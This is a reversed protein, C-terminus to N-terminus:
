RRKYCRKLINQMNAGLIKKKDEVSINAYTVWGLQPRPDRMPMDTGYLTRDALGEKVFYEVVGQTVTTYTLQLFTNPHEKVFAACKEAAEFSRGAHDLFFSIHPYTSVLTELDEFYTLYGGCDMLAFLSNENALQWWPNYVPDNYRIGTRAYFMKLGPLKYELHYRRAEGEVDNVYNPDILVYGCVKEPYKATMELVIKNGETSDTWIGLWPAVCYRDVGMRTNLKVMNDLDGRMMPLGGGCNGDDELLHAHSDFVYVSMPKGESAEKAIFDNELDCIEPIKMGCLRALNEGSIMRKEEISIDAYDIMARAAGMSMKPMNSGFLCRGAGFKEVMDEIVHNAQMVSLEVYLNKFDRMLPIIRREDPWGAGQLLINLEPHNELIQSLENLGDLESADILLPIGSEALTHYYKGMTRENPDYNHSKPFMKAAIMGISRLNDVLEDPEYADTFSNPLITYCGWLRGSKLLEQRLRENGYLPAYDKSWGSCVLAASVGCQDMVSVIDETRWIELRHKLGRKGVCVNSDFFVIGM